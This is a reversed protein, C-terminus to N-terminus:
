LNLNMIGQDLALVGTIVCWSVTFHETARGLYLPNTYPPASIVNCWQMDTQRSASKGPSIEPMFASSPWGFLCCLSCSPLLHPTLSTHFLQVSSWLLRWVGGGTGVSQPSSPVRFCFHLAPCSLPCSSPMLSGLQAQCCAQLGWLDDFSVWGVLPVHLAM